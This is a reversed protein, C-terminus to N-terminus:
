GRIRRLKDGGGQRGLQGVSQTSTPIMAVEDKDRETYADELTNCALACFSRGCRTPPGCVFHQWGVSGCVALLTKVLIDERWARDYPLQCRVCPFTPSCLGRIAPPCTICDTTATSLPPVGRQVSLTQTSMLPTNFVDLLWSIIALRAANSYHLRSGHGHVPRPRYGRLAGCVRFRAWPSVVRLRHVTGDAPPACAAIGSM